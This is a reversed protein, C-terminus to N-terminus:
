LTPKIARTAANRLATQAAQRYTSEVLATAAAADEPTKLKFGAMPAAAYGGYSKVLKGNQYHRMVAFLRMSRSALGGRELMIQPLAVEVLCGDVNARPGAALAERRTLPNDHAVRGRVKIGLAAGADIGGLIELQRAPTLWALDRGAARYYDKLDQDVRKVADFDEGVSHVGDAPYLHIECDSGSDAAAPGVGLGLSLLALASAKFLKM